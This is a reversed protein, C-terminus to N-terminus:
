LKTRLEAIFFCLQWELHIHHMLIIWSTLIRYKVRTYSSYHYSILGNFCLVIFPYVFEVMLYVWMSTDIREVIGIIYLEHFYISVIWQANLRNDFNRRTSSLSKLDINFIGVSVQCRNSRVNSWSCTEEKQPLDEKQRCSLCM